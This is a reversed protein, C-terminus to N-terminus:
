RGPDTSKDAKEAAEEMASAFDRTSWAEPTSSEKGAAAFFADSKFSFFRPEDLAASADSM